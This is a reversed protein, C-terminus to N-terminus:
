DPIEAETLTTIINNESCYALRGTRSAVITPDDRFEIWSAQSDFIRVFTKETLSKWEVYENIIKGPTIFNNLLYEQYAPDDGGPWYSVDPSPRVYTTTVSYKAM